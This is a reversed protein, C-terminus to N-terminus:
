QWARIEQQPLKLKKPTVLLLILSIIVIAIGYYMFSNIHGVVGSLWGAIIPGIIYGLSNMSSCLGIMHKRERGMRVILDTYVADVLPFSLQILMSSIAVVALYWIVNPYISILSLVVGGIILFIQASKKKHQYIGLKPIILGVFLSPLMYLTVFLGGWSSIKALNDNVITGTTWYTADLMILMLSMILVPWVSKGLKLWHGIERKLSIEEAEIEVPKSKLKVISFMVLSVTLVIIAFNLVTREGRLILWTGLVPGTAYALGKFTELVAWLNPRQVPSAIEAVYQQAAFGFMEYYVGWSVMAGIMLIVIPLYIVGYLFGVFSAGGAIALFLTRKVTVGKFLQAFLLDLIIGAMSSTSMVVGMMLPSGLRSELFGPVFDSLVADSLYMFFIISLYSGFKLWVPDINGFRLTWM